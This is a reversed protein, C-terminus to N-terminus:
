GAQRGMQLLVHPCVHLPIQLSRFVHGQPHVHKPSTHIRPLRLLLLSLTSLLLFSIDVSYLSLLRSPWALDINNLPGLGLLM